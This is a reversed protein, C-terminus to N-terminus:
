ALGVASSCVKRIVALNFNENSTIKVIKNYLSVNINDIDTEKLKSTFERPNSLIKQAKSWNPDDMGFIILILEMVNSVVKPPSKL